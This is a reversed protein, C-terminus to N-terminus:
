VVGRKLLAALEAESLGLEDVYVERNHEGIAPAPRRYSIPTASFKAFPGPYRVREPLEPQELMRWYERSALQESAAVDEFTAVPAM